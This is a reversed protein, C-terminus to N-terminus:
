SGTVELHLATATAPDTRAFLFGHYDGPAADDPVTVELTVASSKGAAPDVISAPNAVVAGEPLKDGAGSTLEGVRLAIQSPPTGAGVNVFARGVTRQGAAVSGLDVSDSTTWSAAAFGSASDTFVDWAAQMMDVFAATLSQAASAFQRQVEPDTAQDVLSRWTSVAAEVPAASRAQSGLSGEALDGFRAAVSRATDIGLRQVEGVLRIWENVDPTSRPDERNSSEETM